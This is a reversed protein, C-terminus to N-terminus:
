RYNIMLEICKKADLFRFLEKSLEDLKVGFVFPAAMGAFLKRQPAVPSCSHVGAIVVPIEKFSFNTFQHIVM